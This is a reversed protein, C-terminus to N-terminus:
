PLRLTPRCGDASTVGITVRKGMDNVYSAEGRVDKKEGNSSKREVIKDSEQEVESQVGIEELM